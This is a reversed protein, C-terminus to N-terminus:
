AEGYYFERAYTLVDKEPVEPKKPGAYESTKEMAELSM